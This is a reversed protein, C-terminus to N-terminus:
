IVFVKLLNIAELLQLYKKLGLDDGYDWSNISGYILGLM